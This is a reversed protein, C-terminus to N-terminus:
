HYIMSGKSKMIRRRTRRSKITVLIEKAQDFGENIEVFKAQGFSSAVASILLYFPVLLRMERKPIM